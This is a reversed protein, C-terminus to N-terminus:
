CLDNSLYLVLRRSVCNDEDSVGVLIMQQVM